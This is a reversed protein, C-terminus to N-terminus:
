LRLEATERAVRRRIDAITQSKGARRGRRVLPVRLAEFKGGCECKGIKATKPVVQRAGCKACAIIEKRGSEKGRKALPKGDVECIDLAFDISPASAIRTGVGYGDAFDNLELISEEDMGGSAIIKVDRFGRIDLEWRVEKLITRFDGRRSGPTDLRVAALKKGLAEAVAVAEFKEDAFTDILAVRPVKREIVEDFALIAARTSGLLLCLAHPMTGSPEVGLKEAALVTSVGDCGGAYACREVLPAIIPHTRRAGFSLVQRNGAAKKVRASVTMIGSAQCLMGLIATEYAGFEEYYGEIELVPGWPYFVSGEPLSRAEVPLRSLLEAAEEIGGLVGWPWAEPFGKTMVEAVVKKHVGRAALIKNTRQFYVDTVKGSFVDEPTAFFRM